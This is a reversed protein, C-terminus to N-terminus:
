HGRRNLISRYSKQINWLDVTSFQKNQNTVVGITAKVVQTLNNIQEKTIINIKQTNHKNM